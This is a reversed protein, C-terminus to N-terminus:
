WAGQGFRLAGVAPREHGALAYGIASLCCDDCHHRRIAARVAAVLRVKVRPTCADEGDLEDLQQKILLVLTEREVDHM